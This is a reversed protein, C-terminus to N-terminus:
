AGYERCRLDSKPSHAAPPGPGRLCKGRETPINSPHGRYSVYEAAAVPELLQQSDAAHALDEGRAVHQEISPDRHLHRRCRGFPRALAEAVLCARGRAEVVRVDHRDVVPAFVRVTRVEHHLQDLALAEAVDELNTARKRRALDRGIPACIAPASSCACACPTTCRSTFGVLRSTVADPSMLTVSKPMEFDALASGSVSGPATRPVGPYRAGSCAAPSTASARVSTYESPTTSASNSVPM